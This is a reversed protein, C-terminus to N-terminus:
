EVGSRRHNRTPYPISSGHSRRKSHGQSHHNHGGVSRSKRKEDLFGHIGSKRSDSEKDLKNEIRELIQILKINFEGQQERSKMLKRNDEQHTQVDKQLREIIKMMDLNEYKGEGYGHSNSIEKDLQDHIGRVKDKASYAEQAGVM